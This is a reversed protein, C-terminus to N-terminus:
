DAFLWCIDKWVHVTSNESCITRANWPWHVVDTLFKLQWYSAFTIDNEHQMIYFLAFQTTSSIANRLKRWSIILMPNPLKQSNIVVISAFVTSRMMTCCCGGCNWLVQCLSTDTSQTAIDVLHNFPLVRNCNHVVYYTAHVEEERPSPTKASM